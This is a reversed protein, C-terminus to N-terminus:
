PHPKRGSPRRRGAGSRCHPSEPAAGAGAGRGPEVVHLYHRAKQQLVFIQRLRGLEDQSLAISITGETRLEVDIGSEEALEAAFGPWLSQSRKLLGFLAGEGPEVESGAALMGAAAWSAGRGTARREFITVACGAAALRWGISLGIVGGGIIAIKSIPHSPVNM